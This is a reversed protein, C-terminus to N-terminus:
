RRKFIKMQNHIKLANMAILKKRELPLNPDSHKKQQKQRNHFVPQEAPTAQMVPGAPDDTRAFKKM